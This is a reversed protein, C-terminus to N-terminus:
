STPAWSPWPRRCWGSPPAEVTRGNVFPASMTSLTATVPHPAFASIPGWPVWMGCGYAVGFRSLLVDPGDCERPDGNGVGVIM